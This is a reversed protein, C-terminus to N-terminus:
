WTRASVSHASVYVIAGIKGVLALGHSVASGDIVAIVHYETPSPLTRYGTYLLSTVKSTYFLQFM